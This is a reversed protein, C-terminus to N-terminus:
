CAMRTSVMRYAGCGWSGSADSTVTVSSVLAPMYSVGNWQNAFEHWWLFDARFQSNLRVFHHPRDTRRIAEILNRIFMRGPRVTAAHNLYGLLSQLQRKTSSRRSLWEDWLQQLRSLETSPLRVESAVTDIEIGLFALCTSPGEVKEPAVQFGLRRCTELACTLTLNAEQAGFVLFDDLYHLLERVGNCVMAWALADAVATFINPESRLGFPLATDVYM